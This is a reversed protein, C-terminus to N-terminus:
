TSTQSWMGPYFLTIFAVDANAVDLAAGGADALAGAGANAGAGRGPRDPTAPPSPRPTGPARDLVCAGTASVRVPLAGGMLFQFISVDHPALDWVVNTDARVPGMNTRKSHFYYLEGFAARRAMLEKLMVVHGLVSQLKEM